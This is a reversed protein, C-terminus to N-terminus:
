ARKALLRRCLDVVRAMEVDANLVRAAQRAASRMIEIEGATLRNLMGAVTAPEFDPAALGFGYQRVLDAMAPSPGVIVALGAMIFDFLKNPLAMAKNYSAPRLLYFGADYEAIRPVIQAPAVPDHFVVRGPALRDALRRLEAVYGGSDVLIFDLSFRQDALALAEIMHDLRRDRHAGGHHVLRIREPDVAHTPAEVPAPANLVVQANFGFEQRYRQAIPEAVTIVAAARPGYRRLFYTIMPSLFAMWIAHEARELPSYEHADYIVPARSVEAATVAIPVAAWENAYFLDAQAAQAMELADRYHPRQWYGTEYLSPALRGGPLSLAYMAQNLHAPRRVLPRWAVGPWAPDADGYGIVILEYHPALYEIQRLVRADRRIESFSLICVRPKM